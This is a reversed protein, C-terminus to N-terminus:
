AKDLGSQLSAVKAQAEDREALVADYTEQPIGCGVVFLLVLLLVGGVLFWRKAM